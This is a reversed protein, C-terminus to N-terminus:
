RLILRNFLSSIINPMVDKILKKNDYYEIEDKVDEGYTCGVIISSM